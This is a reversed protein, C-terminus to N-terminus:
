AGQSTQGLVLDAMEQPTEWIGSDRRGDRQARTRSYRIKFGAQDADEHEVM